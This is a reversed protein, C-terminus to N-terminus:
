NEEFLLYPIHKLVSKKLAKKITESERYRKDNGQRNFYDAAM